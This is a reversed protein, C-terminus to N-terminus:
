GPLTRDRFGDLIRRRNADIVASVFTRAVDSMGPTSRVIQEVDATSLAEVMGIWHAIAGAPARRCVQLAIDVLTRKAGTPEAEFRTALGKAVWRNVGGQELIRDRHSDTLNFGLSTAHDYSPALCPRSGETFPLTSASGISVGRGGLSHQGGRPRLSPTILKSSHASIRRNCRDSPMPILAIARCTPTARFVTRTANAASVGGLYSRSSCGALAMRRLWGSRRTM